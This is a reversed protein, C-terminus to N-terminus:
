DYFRQTPDLFDQLRQTPDLFDQLRQTPDFFAHFRQTTDLFDQLRQTPDLFAFDKPQSLFIRSIRIRFLLLPICAVYKSPPLLMLSTRLAEVSSCCREMPIHLARRSSHFCLRRMTTPKSSALHAATSGTTPWSTRSASTASRTGALVRAFWEFGM